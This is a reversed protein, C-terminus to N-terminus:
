RWCFAAMLMLSGAANPNAPGLRLTEVATTKGTRLRWRWLLPLCVTAAGGFKIPFRMIRLFPFPARFGLKYIRGAQGLGDGVWFGRGDALVEDEKDCGFCRALRRGLVARVPTIPLLGGSPSSIFAWRRAIVTSSRSWCIRGAGSRHCANSEFNESGTPICMSRPLPAVQPGGFDGGVLLGGSCRHKAPRGDPGPLSGGGCNPEGVFFSGALWTLLIIEPAGALMQLARVRRGGAFV